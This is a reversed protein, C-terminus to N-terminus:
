PLIFSTIQRHVPLLLDKLGLTVADRHCLFAVPYDLPTGHLNLMSLTASVPPRLVSWHSM